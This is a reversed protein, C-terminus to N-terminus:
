GDPYVDLLDDLVEDPQSDMDPSKGDEAFWQVNDDLKIIISIQHEYAAIQAEM